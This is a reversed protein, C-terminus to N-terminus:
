FSVGRACLLLNAGKMKLAQDYGVPYVTSNASNINYLRYGFSNVVDLYEKASNGAKELARPSFESFIVPKHKSLINSSGKFVKVEYGEVDIKIIDVPINNLFDDLTTVEITIYNENSVQWM